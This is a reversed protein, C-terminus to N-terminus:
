WVDDLTKAADLLRRSTYRLSQFTKIRGGKVFSIPGIEKATGLFNVVFKGSDEWPEISKVEAIHTIASTPAVRYVAIYRIQPRMSGHLRIKYWRNEGLFVEQFGERRAPVVVTDIDSLDARASPKAEVSQSVGADVDELFPHFRYAVDGGAAGYKKVEILEVGFQFKTALVKELDDPIEDIIVLAAFQSDFVLSDLMNDLNRLGREKAYQDCRAVAGVEDQLANFLVKKVTRPEAEFALSFQLIQVAIHRLQDHSALEVEVVFLRPRSGSLDLLYGDPINRQGGKAGIKKKVDLYIRDSGFLQGKVLQIASELENESQYELASYVSESTWLRTM